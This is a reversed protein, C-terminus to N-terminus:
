PALDRFAEALVDAGAVLRETHGITNWTPWSYDLRNTSGDVEFTLGLGSIPVLQAPRGPGLATRSSPDALGLMPWPLRLQLTRHADDVRWTALSDYEEAEPDWTGEVLEGVDGLEPEQREGGVTLGQNLLQRFLVWPADDGEPLEVRERAYLRIPDLERRV